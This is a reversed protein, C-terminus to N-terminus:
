ILIGQKLLMDNICSKHGMSSVENITELTKCLSSTNWMLNNAYCETEWPLSSVVYYFTNRVCLIIFFIMQVYVGQWYILMYIKTTHNPTKNKYLSKPIASLSLFFLNYITRLNIQPRKLNTHLICKIMYTFM